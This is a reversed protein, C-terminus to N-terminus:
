LATNDILTISIVSARNPKVFGLGWQIIRFGIAPNTTPPQQNVIHPYATPPHAPLPSVSLHTSSPKSFPLPPAAHHQVPVRLIPPPPDPECRWKLVEPQRGRVCAPLHAEIVLVYSPSVLKKLHLCSDFCAPNIEFSKILSHTKTFTLLAM